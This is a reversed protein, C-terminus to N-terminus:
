SFGFYKDSLEPNSSGMQGRLNPEPGSHASSALLAIIIIPILLTQLDRKEKQWPMNLESGCPSPSLGGRPLLM